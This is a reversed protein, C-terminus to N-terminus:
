RLHLDYNSQNSEIRERNHIQKYLHEHVICAGVSTEERENQVLLFEPLVLKKQRHCPHSYKSGLYETRIPCNPSSTAPQPGASALGGGSSLFIKWM